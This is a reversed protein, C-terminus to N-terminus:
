NVPGKVAMYTSLTILLVLVACNVIPFHITNPMEIISAQLSTILLTCFMGIAIGIVVSTSVICTAEHRFMRYGQEKTMGM